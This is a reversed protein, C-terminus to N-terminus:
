MHREMIKELMMVMAVGLGFVSETTLNQDATSDFFVRLDSDLDDQPEWYCVMMPVKPFPHLVVSIDSELYNKTTTAGFLSILDGFLESHRDALKKLKQPCQREFFADWSLGDKLNRFSVWEGTTEKGQGSLIYSLFPISFWAHTHCDSSIRGRADVSFDRGLCRITLEGGNMRAGLVEARSELEVGRIQRKLEGLRELQKEEATMQTTVEGELREIIESDLHPCLRLPKHKKIVSAAFALCTTEGCQRCNTKPLLKYIDLPSKAAM